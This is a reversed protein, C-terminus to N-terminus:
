VEARTMLLTRHGDASYVRITWLRCGREKHAEHLYSPYLKNLAEAIAKANMERDCRVQTRM